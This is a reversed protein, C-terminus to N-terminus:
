WSLLVKIGVVQTQSCSNKGVGIKGLTMDKMLDKVITDKKVVEVGQGKLRRTSQASEFQILDSGGNLIWQFEKKKKKEKQIPLYTNIEM